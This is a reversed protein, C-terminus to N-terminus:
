ELNLNEEEDLLAVWGFPDIPSSLKEAALRRSKPFKSIDSPKVNPNKRKNQPIGITFQELIKQIFTKTKENTALVDFITTNHFGSAWGIKFMIPIEEYVKYFEKISDINANSKKREQVLVESRFSSLWKSERKFQAKYFDSIAYKISEIIKEELEGNPIEHPYFEFMRKFKKPLDIWKDANSKTSIEYIKRFEAENISIEFNFSSNFRITELAPTQSQPEKDTLYLNAPYVAMEASDSFADTVHIFKLIDFKIDSFDTKIGDKTRKQIGCVFLEEEIPKDLDKGKIERFQRSNLVKTMLQTKENEKLNSFARWALITRLAGKISTGPIYPTNDHNKILEQIQKKGDLGFPIPCKYAYGKEIISDALDSDQLVSECFYRFNFQARIIAQEENNTTKQIRASTRELWNTFKEPFDPHKELALAFAKNQDLRYYTENDIIYEFPELSNGTGIHVPSVTHLKLKM